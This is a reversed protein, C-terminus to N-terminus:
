SALKRVRVRSVGVEILWSRDNMMAINSQPPNSYSYQKASYSYRKASYSVFRLVWGRSSRKEERVRSHLECFVFQSHEGVEDGPRKEEGPLLLPTVFLRYETGFTVCVSERNGKRRRTKAHAM